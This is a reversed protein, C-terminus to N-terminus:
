LYHFHTLMGEAVIKSEQGDYGEYRFLRLMTATQENLKTCPQSYVTLSETPLGLSEAISGLQENLLSGAADWFKSAANALIHPTGDISRLTIFEKEGEIRTWGEESGQQTIYRRKESEPLEFFLQSAQLLEQFGIQLPDKANRYAVSAWGNDSLDSQYDEPIQPIMVSKLPQLHQFKLQWVPIASADAKCGSSWQSFRLLKPIKINFLFPMKSHSSYFSSHFVCFIKYGIIQRGLTRGQRRWMRIQCIYDCSGTGTVFETTNKEQV